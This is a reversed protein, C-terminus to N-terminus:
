RRLVPEGAEVDALGYGHNLLVQDGCLIALQGGPISWKEMVGTVLTDFDSLEPM